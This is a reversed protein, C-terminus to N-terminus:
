LKDPNDTLLWTAMKNNKPVMNFSEDKKDVHKAFYKTPGGQFAIGNVGNTEGNVDATFACEIDNNIVIRSRHASAGNIQIGGGLHVPRDIRYTGESLQITGGGNMSLYNVAQQIDHGERLYLTPRSVPAAPEVYEGMFESFPRLTAM